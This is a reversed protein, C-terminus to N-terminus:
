GPALASIGSQMINSEMSKDLTKQRQGRREKASLRLQDVAKNAAESGDVLGHVFENNKPIYRCVAFVPFCVGYSLMYSSTYLIKRGFEASMYNTKEAPASHSAVGNQSELNAAASEMKDAVDLLFAQTEPTVPDDTVISRWQTRIGRPARCSRPSAEIHGASFGHGVKLDGFDAPKNGTPEGPDFTSHSLQKPGVTLEFRRNLAVDTEFAQKRRTLAL